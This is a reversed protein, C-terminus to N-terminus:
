IWGGGEKKKRKEGRGKERKKRKQKGTKRKKRQRKEKLRGQIGGRKKGGKIKKDVREVKKLTHTHAHTHTDKYTHAHTSPLEMHTSMHQGIIVDLM